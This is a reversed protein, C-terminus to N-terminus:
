LQAVSEQRIVAKARAVREAIETEFGRDTPEYFNRPPIARPFYHGPVVGAPHDHPYQYMVGYGQDKAMAKIPANRLHNPVDLSGSSQIMHKCAAMARKVANSKPAQALYLCAQAL